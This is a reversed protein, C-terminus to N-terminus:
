LATNIPYSTRTPHKVLKTSASQTQGILVSYKNSIVNQNSTKSTEYECKLDTWGFARIIPYSTRTPHKVLKTSASQSQGILVSYKNSIVNQNSTKSTEYECELDTWGLARIIPYSTRTPHKEHIACEFTNNSHLYIVQNPFHSFKGSKLNCQNILQNNAKPRVDTDPFKNFM